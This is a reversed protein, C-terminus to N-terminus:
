EDDSVEKTFNCFKGQDKAFTMFMAWHFRNVALSCLGSLVAALFLTFVFGSLQTIAVAYALLSFLAVAIHLDFITWFCKKYGAKVSSAMTKGLAFEKRAREYAIANSVSLLAGGLLVALFTWVSLHLFPIGWVLLIMPLLYILFSYLHAFALLKYRVFFFVMMGLFLAGFAAYMLVLALNGFQADEHIVDGISFSLESAQGNLSTEIASALARASYDTFSGSIYVSSETITQNVTVPVLSEGGIYFYLTVATNAADQTWGKLVDRGAKTFMVQVASIGNRSIFRAGRVYTNITEGRSASPELMTASDASSGYGVGFEGIKGVYNFVTLAEASESMAGFTPVYIQVTYDNVVDIAANEMHLGDVRAKLQSVASQFDEEFNATVKRTEGDQEVLDKEFYLAGLKEYDKAYKEAEEGSLAALNDEYEGASIVGEPFYVATYGGGRYNRELGDHPQNGVQADKSLDSLISNFTNKGEFGYPFSVTCMFTVGLILISILILCVASKLKTM